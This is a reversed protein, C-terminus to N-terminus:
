GWVRRYAAEINKAFRRADMLPSQRLRSRLQRRLEALRPLDSALRVAATIFGEDTEAALDVLELQFLQSLGGRGVCTRGIRSIVPVGMWLSDLSTTHGNYPITDLGLDIEHYAQLYQARPRHPIFDIHESVIGEVALRRLLQRRTSGSPALLVLRSDPVARLVAGWLRLTHDSLKCPNNLCGFTLFPRSLAPLENVEPQDSLPDYCWFSDPLYLTRESYHTESGPPDLRPDSLRYDITGIGTTGPYALWAIQIPAPKRAFVLPRGNAMHMSLDILIDIRDDRILRSLAADDLPRVERWLDSYGAIRRTLDDPREASSYCFIEFATHDHNSLLPITFLSQCHERFDPSVYGVRLRRGSSRDNAHASIESRLPVAHRDNWRRCEELIPQYDTAQFSLAYVLNSHTAANSPDLALARRFCEIAEDLRGTDKLVNGLNDYIAPRNGGRALCDRLAMEAEDLRGMSRLLCASNNVADLLRPHARIASSYAAAALKFDGLEKYANGLNNLAEAYDPRLRIALEYQKVAERARGLGHLANGLNFAAAPNDPGSEVARRLVREAETFQRQQCLAAGLNAAHSVVLPELATAARLHDLAEDIKGQEQLVVGLNSMAGAYGPHLKIAQSYATAARPLDGRHRYSNGLNNFAEAFDPQLQVAMEYANGAAAFDGQEDLVSGLAFCADASDPAIALVRRYVDAADNWRKMATLIQGLGSLYRPEVPYAAVVRQVLALAASFNGEQLELLGLRFQGIVDDPIHNLLQQYLRRAEPLDGARHRATATELIQSPNTM